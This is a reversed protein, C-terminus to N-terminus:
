KFRTTFVDYNTNLEIPQIFFLGIQAKDTEPFHAIILGSVDFVLFLIEPYDSKDSFCLTAISSGM